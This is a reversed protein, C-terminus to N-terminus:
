EASKQRNSSKAEKKRNRAKTWREKKRMDRDEQLAALSEESDLLPCWIQQTYDGSGAKLVKFQCHVLTREDRQVSSAYARGCRSCRRGPADHNIIPSGALNAKIAKEIEDKAARRAEAEESIEVRTRLPCIGFKHNPDYIHDNYGKRLPQHCTRCRRTPRKSARSRVGGDSIDSEGDSSGYSSSDSVERRRKRRERRGKKRKRSDKRADDKERRNHEFREDLLDQGTVRKPGEDLRLEARLGIEGDPVEPLPQPELLADLENFRLRSALNVSGAKAAYNMEKRERSLFQEVQLVTVPHLPRPSRREVKYREKEVTFHDRMYMKRLATASAKPFDLRLQTFIRSMDSNIEHLVPYNDHTSSAAKLRSFRPFSNGAVVDKELDTALVSSSVNGEDATSHDKPEGGEFDMPTGDESDSDESEPTELSGLEQLAGGDEIEGILNMLESEGALHLSKLDEPLDDLSLCYAYGVKPLESGKDALRFDPYQELVAERGMGEVRRPTLEEPPVRLGVRLACRRNHKHLLWHLKLDFLHCGVRTSAGYAKSLQSHFNECSSSGRVSRYTPLEISTNHFAATGTRVVSPLNEVDSVCSRDVHQLQNGLVHWFRNSLLPTYRTGPPPSRLQWEEAGSELLEAREASTAWEKLAAEDRARYAQAVAMIRERLLTSSPIARSIYKVREHKPIPGTLGVTARASALAHADQENDIYVARRLDSKFKLCLVHQQVVERNIRQQLHYGDLKPVVDPPIYSRLTKNISGCCANDTYLVRPHQVGNAQHRRYVEQLADGAYHLSTTPVLYSGLVTSFDGVVTLSQGLSHTAICKKACGRTHDIAISYSAVKTALERLLAEREISLDVLAIALVQNTSVPWPKPPIADAADSPAVLFPSKSSSDWRGEFAALRQSYERHLAATLFTACQTVSGGNM